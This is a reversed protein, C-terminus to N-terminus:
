AVQLTGTMGSHYACSFPYTGPAVPATFSGTAGGQVDGSTFATSGTSSM